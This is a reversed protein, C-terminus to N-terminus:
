ASNYHILTPVELSIALSLVNSRKWASFAAFLFSSFDYWSNPSDVRFNNSYTAETDLELSANIYTVAWGSPAASYM